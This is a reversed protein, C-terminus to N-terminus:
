DCLKDFEDDGVPGESDELCNDFLDNTNERRSTHVKTDRKDLVENM